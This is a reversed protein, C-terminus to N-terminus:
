GPVVRSIAWPLDPFIDYYVGRPDVPNGGKGILLPNGPINDETGINDEVYDIGDM